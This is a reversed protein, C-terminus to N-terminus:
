SQGALMEGGPCSMDDPNQHNNKNKDSLPPLVCAQAEWQAILVSCIGKNMSLKYFPCFIHSFGSLSRGKHKEFLASSGRPRQLM